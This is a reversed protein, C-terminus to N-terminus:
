VCVHHISRAVPNGRLSIPVLLTLNRPSPWRGVSRAPGDARNRVGSRRPYSATPLPLPLGLRRGEDIAEGLVPPGVSLDHMLSEADLEASFSFLHYAKIRHVGLEAGLRVLAPLERYNSKMLTM